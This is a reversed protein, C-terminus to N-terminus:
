ILEDKVLSIIMVIGVRLLAREELGYLMCYQVYYLSLCVFAHVSGTQGGGHIFVLPLPCRKPEGRGGLPTLQEVYMQRQMENRPPQRIQYSLLSSSRPLLFFHYGSDKM